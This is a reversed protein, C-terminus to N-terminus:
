KKREFVSLFFGDTGCRAPTLLLGMADTTQCAALGALSFGAVLHEPPLCRWDPQRELFSAVREGNEEPLLSCTVYAIRGAPKVFRAARDLVADQEVLRRELSGIRVRWKADPNRRWTGVGTCPADVLVLDAKEELGALPEDGRRRPTRVEVNNAGARQLRAHIPALRRQDDDTAIIRGENQAIAALALTKGGG